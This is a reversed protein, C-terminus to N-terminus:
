NFFSTDMFKQFYAPNSDNFVNKVAYVSEYLHQELNKHLAGHEPPYEKELQNSIIPIVSKCHEELKIHFKFVDKYNTINSNPHILIILKVGPKEMRAKEIIEEPKITTSSLDMYNEWYDPTIQRLKSLVYNKACENKCSVLAGVINQIKPNFM